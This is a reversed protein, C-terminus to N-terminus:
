SVNTSASAAMLAMIHCFAPLDPSSWHLKVSAGVLLACTRLAGEVGVGGKGAQQQVRTQQKCSCGQAHRGEVM